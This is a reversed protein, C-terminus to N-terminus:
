HFGNRNICPKLVLVSTNFVAVEYMCNIKNLQIYRNCRQTSFLYLKFFSCFVFYYIIIRVIIIYKQIISKVSAIGAVAVIDFPFQIVSLFQRKITRYINISDIETGASLTIIHGSARVANVSFCALVFICNGGCAASDNAAAAM